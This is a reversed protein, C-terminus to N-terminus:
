STFRVRVIGGTNMGRRVKEAAELSKLERVFRDRLVFLDTINYQNLSRGAIAYSSYKYNKGLFGNLADIDAQLTLLRDTIATATALNTKIETYGEGVTFREGSKEVVAIWKYKGAKYTASTSASITVLHDDGSATATINITATNSTNRLHYKLVWGDSAKYDDLARQWKVTDGAIFYEPEITPIDVM